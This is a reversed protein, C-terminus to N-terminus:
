ELITPAKDQHLRDSVERTEADKGDIPDSQRAVTEWGKKTEDAIFARIESELLGYRVGKNWLHAVFEDFDLYARESVTKEVTEGAENVEEEKREVYLPEFFYKADSFNAATKVIRYLPRRDEPIRVVDTAFRLETPRKATELENKRESIREPSHVLELFAPYDLRFFYSGELFVRNVFEYFAGPNKEVFALDAYYGDEKRLVFNPLLVEGESFDALNGFIGSTGM